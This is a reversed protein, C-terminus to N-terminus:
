PKKHITVTHPQLTCFTVVSVVEKWEPCNTEGEWERLEEEGLFELQAEVLTFHGGSWNAISWSCANCSFLLKENTFWLHITGSGFHPMTRTIGDLDLAVSRLHDNDKAYGVLKDESPNRWLRGALVPLFCISAGRDILDETTTGGNATTGGMHWCWCCHHWCWLYCRSRRSWHCCRPCRCSLSRRTGKAKM